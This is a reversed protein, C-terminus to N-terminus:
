SVLKLASSELIQSLESQYITGFVSIKEPALKLKPTHMVRTLVKGGCYMGIDQVIKPRASSMDDGMLIGLFRRFRRGPASRLTM